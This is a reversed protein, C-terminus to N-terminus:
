DKMIDKLGQLGSKGKGAGAGAKKAKPPASSSEAADSSEEAPKPAKKPKKPVPQEVPTATGSSLAPPNLLQEETSPPESEVPDGPVPQSPTKGRPNVDLLHHREISKDVVNTVPSGMAPLFSLPHPSLRSSLGRARNRFVTMMGPPPLPTGNGNVGGTSLVRPLFSPSPPPSCLSYPTVLSWVIPPLGNAEKIGPMVLDNAWSELQQIEKQRSGMNTIGVTLNVACPARMIVQVALQCLCDESVILLWSGDGLQYRRM